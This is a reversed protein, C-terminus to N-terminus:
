KTLYKDKTCRFVVLNDSNEEYKKFGLKELLHTSSQNEAHTYAELLNLGMNQFGFDIVKLAAEEMIGMKQFKPLLEYGIEAKSNDESFDFLCITGVLKDDEVLAIAWYILDNKLVNEIFVKADGMSKSPQRDLFKNVSKDSRLAFIENADNITLKRLVLRNTKLVPFPTM